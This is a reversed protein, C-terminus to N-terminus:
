ASGWGSAMNLERKKRRVWEIYQKWLKDAKIDYVKGKDQDNVAGGPVNYTLNNRDFRFAAIRLLKASTGMLLWHRSPFNYLTYNHRMLNPPEENWADVTITLATRIEEPSYEFDKILLNAEPDVDRLWIRVDMESLFEDNGTPADAM